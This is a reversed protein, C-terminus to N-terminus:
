CEFCLEHMSHVHVELRESPSDESTTDFTMKARERKRRQLNIINQEVTKEISYRITTVERMQGMRLARAIAIHVRNAVTLTLGVAGTDISLLLVTVKPDEKFVRLLESRQTASVRGDILCYQIDEKRLLESLVDLTSTWCSFVINKDESGHSVINRVVATLKTSYGVVTTPSRRPSSAQPRSEPTVCQMASTDADRKRCGPFGSLPSPSRLQRGCDPCFEFSTLLMAVDDDISSCRACKIESEMAKFLANCKATSGQSILSDKQRSTEKLVQNYTHQEKISFKLLIYEHKSPPLELYEHIFQALATLDNLRNQIPTGTLCWRRGANLALVAEFLKSGSNRIWHAEDLVVRYWEVQFLISQAARDAVLTAYTILVVDFSRLENSSRPRGQGHFRIVNLAGPRIHSSINAPPTSTVVVLTGKLAPRYDLEYSYSRSFTGFDGAQPLSHLIATLLTLTKGLGMSDAILGGFFPSRPAQVHVAIIGRIRELLHSCFNEDERQLIFRVGDEQHRKLTSILGSPLQLDRDKALDALSELIKGIEEFWNTEPQQGIGHNSNIFSRMDITDDGFTLFHPNHYASLRHGVDDSASRPGLIHISVDFSLPEEQTRRQRAGYCINESDSM